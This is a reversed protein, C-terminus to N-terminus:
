RGKDRAAERPAAREKGSPSIMREMMMGAAASKASAPQAEAPRPWGAGSERATRGTCCSDEGTRRLSSSLRATSRSRLDARCLNAGM